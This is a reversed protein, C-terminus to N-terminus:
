QYITIEDNSGYWKKINFSLQNESKSSNLKKLPQEILILKCNPNLFRMKELAIRMTNLAPYRPSACLIYDVDACYKKIASIYDIEEIDLWNRRNYITDSETKLGTPIINVDARRLAYSLCGASSMIQLVKADGIYNHIKRALEMDVVCREGTLSIVIDRLTDTSFGTYKDNIIFDNRENCINLEGFTKAVDSTIFHNHRGNYGRVINSVIYDPINYSYYEALFNSYNNANLYDDILSLANVTISDIGFEREKM